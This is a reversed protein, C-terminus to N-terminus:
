TKKALKDLEDDSLKLLDDVSADKLSFGGASGGGGGGTKPKEKTLKEVVEQAKKSALIDTFKPHTLGLKYAAESPNASRRIAIKLEPSEKLLPKLGEDIVKDYSLEEGVKEPSYKAATERETAAIFKSELTTIYAGVDDRMSKVEKELLRRATKVNLFEDDGLEPGDEKSSGAKELASTLSQMRSEMEELRDKLERKEGREKQLDALIGKIAKEKDDEKPAPPADKDPKQESILKQQEEPSLADFEEKTVGLQELNVEGM